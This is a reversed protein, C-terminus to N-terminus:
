YHQYRTSCISGSRRTRQFQWITILLINKNVLNRAKEMKRIGLNSNIKKYQTQIMYDYQIRLLKSLINGHEKLERSPGKHVLMM